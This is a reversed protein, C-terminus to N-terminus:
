CVRLGSRRLLVTNVMLLAVPENCLSVYMVSWPATKRSFSLQDLFEGGKISVLPENGHECSGAVPGYGSGSSSLGCGGARNGQCLVPALVTKYMEMKVIKSLLRSSLTESRCSLNRVQM